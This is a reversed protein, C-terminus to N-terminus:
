GRKRKKKKRRKLYADLFLCALFIVTLTVIIELVLVAPNDAVSKEWRLIKLKIDM